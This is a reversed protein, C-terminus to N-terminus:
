DAEGDQGASGATESGGGAEDEADPEPDGDELLALLQANSLERVSLQKRETWQGLEKAAQQEHARLEALLGTDILYLDVLQFADGTGVGKVQHVVLGTQGGPVEAMDPDASREEIVQHMRQWRDQLAAVRNELIAIGHRRVAARYEAVLRAIREAFEPASKWRGLTRPNINIQQAIERDTLRDAAALAAARERQKTWKWESM